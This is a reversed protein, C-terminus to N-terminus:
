PPSLTLQITLEAGTRNTAPTTAASARARRVSESMSTGTARGTM